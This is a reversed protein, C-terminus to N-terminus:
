FCKLESQLEILTMASLPHIYILHYYLINGLDPCSIKIGRLSINLMVLSMWSCLQYYNSLALSSCKSQESKINSALLTELYVNHMQISSLFPSLCENESYYILMYNLKNNQIPLKSSKSPSQHYHTFLQIVLCINYDLFSSLSLSVDVQTSSCSHSSM